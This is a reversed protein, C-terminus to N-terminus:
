RAAASSTPCSRAASWCAPTCTSCTAAGGVKGEMDDNPVIELEIQNEHSANYAEVLTTAQRELPARTWMTLTSGDDVGDPGASQLEEAAAGDDSASGCAALGTLALGVVALTAVPRVGRARFLRNSM